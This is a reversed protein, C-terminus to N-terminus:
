YWQVTGFKSMKTNFVELATKEKLLIVRGMLTKQGQFALLNYGDDSKEIKVSLVNNFNATHIFANVCWSTNKFATKKGYGFSL